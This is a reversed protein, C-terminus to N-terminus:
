GRRAVITARKVMEGTKAFRYKSQKASVIRYGLMTLVQRYVGLSYFWWTYDQDPRDARAQLWALPKQTELMPTVIVLTDASVRSISALASIPDRLHELVSGILVIDFRGLAPPLDYLDGYYVRARSGLLRHALWYANKWREFLQTREQAWREHDRYYLSQQFPLLHQLGGHGIDFSVVDAGQKEAEFSLFGSAAGIDLVSSGQFDIRGTYEAFKGRLDWEGGVVGFGPLDMTHYFYCDDLSQIVRKAAFAVGSSQANMGM